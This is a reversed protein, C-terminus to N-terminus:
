RQLREQLLRLTPLARLDKNRGAATKSEIIDDLSAVAIELGFVEFTQAHAALEEYTQHGSPRFCLDLMGLDTTLTFVDASELARADIPWDVDETGRLRAGVEQLAAALQTLNEGSREPTIDVDETLDPSGHLRAAVGGILVYRVGHRDLVHLLREIDLRAPTPRPV